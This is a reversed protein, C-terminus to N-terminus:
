IECLNVNAYGIHLKDNDDKLKLVELLEIMDDVTSNPTRFTMSDFYRLMIVSELPSKASSTGDLIVEGFTKNEEFGDKTYLECVWIFKPFPVKSYMRKISLNDNSLYNLKYDKYKRGSTLFLRNIVVEKNWDTHDAWKKLGIIKSTFVSVALDYADKAELFMRRYLPVMINDVIMGKSINDFRRVEYPLNNDDMVVFEEYLDASNITKYVEGEDTFIHNVEVNTNKRKGHGLCIISHWSENLNLPRLGLAIPIGSEIYYYLIRKMERDSYFKGRTKLYAESNYLRPYFGLKTFIKTLMNSDIGKSPLAREFGYEEKISNIESPLTLKYDPYSHAYYDMLNLVTLEACVNTEQDQMSFPFANVKFRKGQITVKYVRRRLYINENNLEKLKSPDILTRGIALKSIPKLTCCGILNNQLYDYKEVDYFECESIENEFFSLRKCFRGGAFHQSSFHMYYSDRYYRDVHYDEFIVTFPLDFKLMLSLLWKVTKVCRKKNPYLEDIFSTIDENKRIYNFTKLTM